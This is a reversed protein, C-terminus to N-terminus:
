REWKLKAATLAAENYLEIRLPLHFSKYEYDNVMDGPILSYKYNNDQLWDALDSADTVMADVVFSGKFEEAEKNSM